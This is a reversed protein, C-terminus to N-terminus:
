SVLFTGLSFISSVVIFFVLCAFFCCDSLLSVFFRTPLRFTITLITLVITLSKRRDSLGACEGVYPLVSTLFHRRDSLGACEGVYPWVSTLFRRRDSLGACEGM